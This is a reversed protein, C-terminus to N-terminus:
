GGDCEGEALYHFSVIRGLWPVWAPDIDLGARRVRIDVKRLDFFLDIHTRTSKILARRNIFEHLKLGAYASCWRRTAAYWANILANTVDESQCPPMRKVRRDGILERVALPTPGRWNALVNRGSRDRLTRYGPEGEVRGLLLSPSKYLRERWIPPASFEITPPLLGTPDQLSKVVPDAAPINLQASLFRLLHATFDLDILHPNTELFGSIGLRSLVPLLFFFGGFETHQAVCPLSANPRQRNLSSPERQDIVRTSDILDAASRSVPFEQETARWNECSAVSAPEPPNLDEAVRAVEYSELPPSEFSRADVISPISPFGARDRTGHLAQGANNPTSTSRFRDANRNALNDPRSAPLTDSSSADSISPFGAHEGAKHLVKRARDSTWSQLDASTAGSDIFNDLRSDTSVKSLSLNNSSEHGFYEHRELSTPQRNSIGSITSVGTYVIEILRVARSLLQRDLLRVPRKEILSIGALWKSRADAAGWRKVWRDLTNLVDVSLDPDLAAAKNESSVTSPIAEPWGWTRMLQVADDTKLTSLLSDILNRERLKRMLAAVGIVGTEAVAVRYLIARLADCQPMRPQWGTAALPWFWASTDDGRAIRVALVIYPELADLFYVAKFSQANPHDARVAQSSLERLKREVLAALDASSNNVTFRGIPLSRILLLRGDALGPLSAVHLADKIMEVGRRLERDSAAALRLRRVRREQRNQM